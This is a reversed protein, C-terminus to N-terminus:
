SILKVIASTCQMTIMGLLVLTVLYQSLHSPVTLGEDTLASNYLLIAALPAIVLVMLSFEMLPAVTKRLASTMVDVAPVAQLAGLFGLVACLVCATEFLDCAEKIHVM